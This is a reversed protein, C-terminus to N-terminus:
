LCCCLAQVTKPGSYFSKDGSFENTVHFARRSGTVADPFGNGVHREALFWPVRAGGGPLGPWPTLLSCALRGAAQVSAHANPGPLCVARTTLATAVQAPPCVSSWAACLSRRGCPVVLFKGKMEVVDVPVQKERM